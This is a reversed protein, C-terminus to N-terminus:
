MMLEPGPLSLNLYRSSRSDSPHPRSLLDVSTPREVSGNGSTTQAQTELTPVAQYETAPPALQAEIDKDTSEIEDEDLDVLRERIFAVIGASKSGPLGGETRLTPFDEHWNRVLTRRQFIHMIGLASLPRRGAEHPPVFTWFGGLTALGGVVSADVYDQTVKSPGPRIESLRLRLSMDDSGSNPPTPDTQVLQIETTMFSRMPTTFGLLDIVSNSFVQRGTSRLIGSRHSSWLVPITESYTMVDFPDGQGPTVYLIDTTSNSFNATVIIDNDSGWGRTTWTFPCRAIAPVFAGIFAPEIVHGDVLQSITENFSLHCPPSIQVNVGPEFINRYEQSMNGEFFNSSYSEACVLLITINEEELIIDSTPDFKVNREMIQIHM